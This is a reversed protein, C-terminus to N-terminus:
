NTEGFDHLNLAVELQAACSSVTRGLREGILRLRGNVAQRTLGLAAAASAANHEAAFYARLTEFAVKGGDREAELPQLFSRRLSSRLLDSEMAAAVLSVDAYRVIRQNGHEAVQAAAAAQRHTLRWGSLGGGMEGIALASVGPLSTAERLVEASALKRLGGLWAWASGDAPRVLLLRRDFAGALAQIVDGPSDAVIVLGVHYGDFDYGLSQTDIVQGAILREIRHVRREESTHMRAMSERKHEESVAEILQDFLAARGNLTHVLDPGKPAKGRDAEAVLFDSFINFGAVYRRLVIDLGIGERAAMRAQARLLPPLQPMNEESREIAELAYDLAATVSHRLGNIYGLDAERPDSIAFLRTLIAEEIEGRRAVLRQCLERQARMARGPVRPVRPRVAGVASTERAVEGQEELCM